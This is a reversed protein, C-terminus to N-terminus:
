SHIRMTLMGIVGVMQHQKSTGLVQEWDLDLKGVKRAPIDAIRSFGAWTAMPWLNALNKLAARIYRDGEERHRLQDVLLGM